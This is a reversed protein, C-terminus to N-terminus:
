AALLLVEEDDMEAIEAEVRAILADITQIQRLQRVTMQEAMRMAILRSEDTSVLPVAEAVVEAVERVIEEKKPKKKKFLAELAGPWIPAGGGGYRPAPPTVAGAAPTYVLTADTGSIAYSGGDATLVKNGGSKTLTADTGTISYSGSLALVERGFELNAATGTIAYSGGLALVERGFELNAATGTITYSGSLALVERGFELSAATGTVAYTGGDGAISKNGGSKTLTADTGTIAYSGADAVVERGYELLAATGTVAYSGSLALVERGRELNAATGNITYSGSLALVERGFELSAATGTVAYSGGNAALTKSAVAKTLTADTGTVVYIGGDYNDLSLPLADLNGLADLEELTLGGAILTYAVPVSELPLNPIEPDLAGEITGVQWFGTLGNRVLNGNLKLYTNLLNM